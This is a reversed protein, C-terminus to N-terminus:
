ALLRDIEAPDAPKAVHANFGAEIAQRVDDPQAYGSVAILRIGGAETRRVAKAIDYGSMDPLGIDCLIVDPHAGRVIEIATAGDYAVDVSHGFFEVVEAL